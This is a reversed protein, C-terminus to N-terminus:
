TVATIYIYIYIHSVNIHHHHHNRRRRRRITIIIITIIIITIIIITIIIIIIYIYIYINAPGWTATIQVAARGSKTAETSSSFSACFITGVFPAAKTFFWPLVHPFDSMGRDKKLNKSRIQKTFLPLKRHNGMTIGTSIYIYIHLYLRWKTPPHHNDM